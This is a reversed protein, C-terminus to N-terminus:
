SSFRYLLLTSRDKRPKFALSLFLLIHWKIRLFASPILNM